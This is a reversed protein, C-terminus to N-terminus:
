TEILAVDECESCYMMGRRFQARCRPCFPDDSAGAPPASIFASLKQRDCLEGLLAGRMERGKVYDYVAPRLAELFAAEGLLEHAVAISPVGAVVQDQVLEAARPATFPWLLKLAAFLANRRSAAARRLASYGLIAQLLALTLLVVLAAVLGWVDWRLTALPVAFVLTALVLTGTVRLLVTATRVRRARARLRTLRRRLSLESSDAAAPALVIPLSVPIGWAVVHMDRGLELTPALSWAGFTRRLVFAGPSLRRVGESLAVVALILVTSVGDGM